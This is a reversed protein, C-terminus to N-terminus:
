ICVFKNIGTIIMIIGVIMASIGAIANLWLVSYEGNVIFYFNLIALLILGIGYIIFGIGMKNM